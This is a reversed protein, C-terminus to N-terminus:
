SLVNATLWNLVARYDSTAGGHPDHLPLLTRAAYAEPVRVARRVTPTVLTDWQARVLDLADTYLRGASGAPVVCPIIARIALKPRYAAAVQRVLDDIRPLGALEKLTPMVVTVAHEAAVLGALTLLGLSGPCDIVTLDVPTAHELALRLRQEAGVTRSLTAELGDMRDPTAPVVTLGDVPTNRSANDITATQALVGAITHPHNDDTTAWRSANGQPDLDILRVTRGSQAALAAITTASTTKGASGAGNAFALTTMTATKGHTTTM